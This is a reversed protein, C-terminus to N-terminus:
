KDFVLARLDKLHEKMASIVADQTETEKPRFGRHWLAEALHALEAESLSLTPMPFDAGDSFEIPPEGLQLVAGGKKDLSRQVVWLPTRDMMQYGLYIEIM